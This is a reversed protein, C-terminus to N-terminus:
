DVGHLRRFLTLSTNNMVEKVLFYRFTFGLFHTVFFRRIITTWCFNDQPGIETWRPRKLLIYLNAFILFKTSHCHPNLDWCDVFIHTWKTLSNNSGFKRQILFQQREQIFWTVNDKLDNYRWHILKIFM